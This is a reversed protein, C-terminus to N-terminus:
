QIESALPREVVADFSIFAVLVAGKRLGIVFDGATALGCFLGHFYGAAEVSLFDTELVVRFVLAAREREGVVGRHIVGFAERACDINVRIGDGALEGGLAGFGGFSFKRSAWDDPGSM